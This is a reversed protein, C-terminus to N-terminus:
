VTEFYEDLFQLKQKWRNKEPESFELIVEKDLPGYTVSIYYCGKELESFGKYTHISDLRIRNEKLQIFKPNM